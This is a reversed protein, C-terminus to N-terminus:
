FIFHFPCSSPRKSLSKEKSFAMLAWKLQNICKSPIVFTAIEGYIPTMGNSASGLLSPRDTFQAMGGGILIIEDDTKRSFNLTDFARSYGASM